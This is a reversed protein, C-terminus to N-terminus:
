EAVSSSPSVKNGSNVRKSKRQKIKAISKKDLTVDTDFIPPSVPPSNERSTTNDESSGDQNQDKKQNQSQGQDVPVNGVSILPKLWKPKHLYEKENNILTSRRKNLNEDFKPKDWRNIVQKMRRKIVEKSTADVWKYIKITKPNNTIDTIKTASNKEFLRRLIALSEQAVFLDTVDIKHRKVRQPFSQRGAAGLLGLIRLRENLSEKPFNMLTYAAKVVELEKDDIGKEVYEKMDKETLEECALRCKDLHM